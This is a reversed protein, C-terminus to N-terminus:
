ISSLIRLSTDLGKDSDTNTGSDSSNLITSVQRTYLIPLIGSHDLHCHTLIAADVDKPAIHMPFGPPRGMMVGYDILLQTKETKM